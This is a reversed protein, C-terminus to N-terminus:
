RGGSASDNVGDIEERLARGVPGLRGEGVQLQVDPWVAALAARHRGRRVFRRVQELDQPRAAVGPALLALLLERPTAYLRLGTRERRAGAPTLEATSEMRSQFDAGVVERPVVDGAAAAAVILPLVGGPLQWVALAPTRLAQRRGSACSGPLDLSRWLLDMGLPESTCWSWPVSETWESVNGILDYPQDAGARRGSEFTGVPLPEGFGLDATNARTADERGGWPFRSRGDGTAALSWEESRPLRAFRWRAFARAQKLDIGGVPEAPEGGLRASNADVARGAASAAFETWDGRTVEFRDVFLAVGNGGDSREFLVFDRLSGFRGSRPPTGVTDIANGGCSGLVLACALLPGRRKGGRTTCVLTEAAGRSM